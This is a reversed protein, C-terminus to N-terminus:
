RYRQNPDLPARARRRGKGVRPLAAALGPLAVGALSPGVCVLGIPWGPSVVRISPGLSCLYLIRVLAQSTDLEPWPASATRPPGSAVVLFRDFASTKNRWIICRYTEVTAPSDGQGGVFAFGAVLWAIAQPPPKGKESSAAIAAVTSARIHARTSSILPIV